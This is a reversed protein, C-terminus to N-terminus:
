MIGIGNCKYINIYLISAESGLHTLEMNFIVPTLESQNSPRWINYYFVILYNISINNMLYIIIEYKFLNIQDQLM